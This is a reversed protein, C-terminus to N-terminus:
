NKSYDKIMPIHTHILKKNNSSNSSNKANGGINGNKNINTINKLPRKNNLDDSSAFPTNLRLNDCSELNLKMTKLPTNPTIDKVKSEKYMQVKGNISFGLTSFDSEFEPISLLKVGQLPTSKFDQLVNSYLNEITSSKPLNMSYVTSLIRNPSETLSNYNNHSQNNKNNLSTKSNSISVLSAKPHLIFTERSFKSLGASNNNSTLINSNNFTNNLMQLSPSKKLNSSISRFSTDNNTYNNNEVTNNINTLGPNSSDKMIDAYEKLLQNTGSSSRQDLLSLIGSRRTHPDILQKLGLISLRATNMSSYPSIEFFLQNSSSIM